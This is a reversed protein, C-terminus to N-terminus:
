SGERDEADWLVVVSSRPENTEARQEQPQRPGALLDRLRARVSASVCPAGYSEGPVKERLGRYRGYRRTTVFPGV